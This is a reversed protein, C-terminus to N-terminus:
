WCDFEGVEVALVQDVAPEGDAVKDLSVLINVSASSGPTLTSDAVLQGARELQLGDVYRTCAEVGVVWETISVPVNLGLTEYRTEHESVVREDAAQQATISDVLSVRFEPTEIIALSTDSLSAPDRTLRDFEDNFQAAIAEARQQFSPPACGYTGSWPNGDHRVAIQRIVWAGDLEGISITQDIWQYGALGLGSLSQEETCEDFVVDGREVRINTANSFSMLERTALMDDEDLLRVYEARFEGAEVRANRDILFEDLANEPLRGLLYADRTSLFRQFLAQVEQAQEVTLEGSALDAASFSLNAGAKVPEATPGDVALGASTPEPGEGPLELLNANGSRCSALVLALSVLCFLQQRRTM